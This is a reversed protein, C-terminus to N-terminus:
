RAPKPHAVVVTNGHYEGAYYDSCTVLVLQGEVSQSFLRESIRALQDKSYDEVADVRYTIVGRETRVRVLAGPDLLALDDFAGDGLRVAHGTIM